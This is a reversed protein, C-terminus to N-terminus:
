LYTATVTKRRNEKITRTLWDLSALLGSGTLGSTAQIKFQTTPSLRNLELVKKLEELSAAGNLDKTNALYYLNPNRAGKTIM